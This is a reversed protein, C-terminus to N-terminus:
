GRRPSSAPPSPARSPLRLRGPRSTPTPTPPPPPPPRVTRRTVPAANPNSRQRLFSPHREPHHPRRLHRGPMPRHRTPRRPRRRSHRHSDHRRSLRYPSSYDRYCAMRSGHSTSPQSEPRERAVRQVDEWDPRRFYGGRHHSGGGSDYRPRLLCHRHLRCRRRLREM